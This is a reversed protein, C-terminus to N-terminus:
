MGGLHLQTEFTSAVLSILILQGIIFLNVIVGIQQAYGRIREVGDELWTDAIEAMRDQFGPMRAYVRLDDVIERSPFGMGSDRLATGFDEGHRSHRLIASVIERLYPTSATETMRSLIQALQHGAQMRTAITYLWVTGVTLRYISWPLARDALRRFRGTWLPFSILVAILALLLGVGFAAGAWSGIFTSLVHLVRSPGTWRSPDSVLALQPMVHLAIIVMMAMCALFMLFPATLNAVLCKRMASKAELVRVALGLGEALRGSAQASSILMVEEPTALGELAVDLTRGEGLTALVHGYIDELPSKSERAHRQLQRLSEELRMRNRLQTQLKKWVRIRERAGFFLLALLRVTRSPANVAM